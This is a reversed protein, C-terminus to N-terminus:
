DEDEQDDESGMPEDSAEDQNFIEGCSNCAGREEEYDQYSDASGCAPCRLFLEEGTTGNDTM